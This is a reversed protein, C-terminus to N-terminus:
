QCSQSMLPVTDTGAPVEKIQGATISLPHFPPTGQIAPQALHLTYCGVFTQTTGGTTQATLTVPVKYYLQGAGANSQVQGTTMQVAKTEAYGQQFQNFARLGPSGAQWYSYARVYEKRNIANYFSELVEVPGSRNDLYRAPGIDGPAFPESTTAPSTQRIGPGTCASKLLDTTNADNAVQKAQASQIGMPQFPPVAQFSPEGLHLTYCGVFTQTVGGTTKAILVVPVTWYLQGAGIDAGVTGITLQVTETDAYGKRFSSFSGLRAAAAPEWYSYARLYEKRDLANVFSTVLAQATSRDDTYGSIGGIPVGPATPAAIAPVTVAPTPPGSTASPSQSPLPTVTVSATPSILPTPSGRLLRGVIPLNTPISGCASLVIAPLVSGATICIFLRKSLM